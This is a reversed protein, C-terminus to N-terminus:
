PARRKPPSRTCCESSARGTASSGPAPGGPLARSEGRSTLPASPCSGVSSSTSQCREYWSSM